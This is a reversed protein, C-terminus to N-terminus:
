PFSPTRTVRELDIVTLVDLGRVAITDVVSPARDGDGAVRAEAVVEDLVGIADIQEEVFHAGHPRLQEAILLHLAHHRM